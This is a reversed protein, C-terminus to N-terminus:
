DEIAEPAINSFAQLLSREVVGALLMSPNEKCRRGIESYYEVRLAEVDEASHEYVDEIDLDHNLFTIASVKDVIEIYTEPVEGAEVWAAECSMYLYPRALEVYEEATLYEKTAEESFSSAPILLVLAVAVLAPACWLIENRFRMAVEEIAKLRIRKLNL